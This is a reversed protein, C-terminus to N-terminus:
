RHYYPPLHKKHESNKKLTFIKKVQEDTIDTQVVGTNQLFDDIIKYPAGLEEEDTQDEWLGATPPADIIEQPIQPFQKALEYVETKYYDAIPEFDVGGDGYKTFYGLEMETKNTTGIVLANHTEAYMYLVTMRVRAQANGVMLQRKHLPLANSSNHPEAEYTLFTDVLGLVADDIHFIGYQIDLNSALQIPLANLKDKRPLTGFPLMVGIVNDKGLAEVALCAVLASDIGGSIGVVVKKRGTSYVYDKIWQIIGQKNLM